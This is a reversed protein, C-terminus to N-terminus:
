RPTGGTELAEVAGARLLDILPAFLRCALDLDGM